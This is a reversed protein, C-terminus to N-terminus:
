RVVVVKFAALVLDSIEKGYRVLVYAMGAAVPLALLLPLLFWGRGKKQNKM